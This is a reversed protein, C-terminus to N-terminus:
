NQSGVRPENWKPPRGEPRITHEFGLKKATRRVWREERYPQGREISM